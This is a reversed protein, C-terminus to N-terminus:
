VHARGIQPCDRPYICSSGLFLNKKTGYKRCAEFVNTETKVNEVLFGVPDTVNAGIGGVKAAIMLVHEPRSTAFYEDVRKQNLLDLEDRSPRLVNHFGRNALLRLAASGVMGAGGTVLVRSAKNM